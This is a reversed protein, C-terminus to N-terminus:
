NKRAIFGIYPCDEEYGDWFEAGLEKIGASSIKLNEWEIGEFGADNATKEIQAKSFNTDIISMYVEGKENYFDIGIRGDERKSFKRNNVVEGFRKFAPNLTLAVFKCGDKLLNATNSFIEEMQEQNVAPIVMIATVVDFKKGATIEAYSSIYEIDQPNSAEEDRAKKLENESPECGVVEVAGAGKIMKTFTGNACGIDLVKKDKLEGILRLAEPYQVFRKNPDTITALAYEMSIKDYQHLLAYSEAKKHEGDIIEQAKKPEGEKYAMFETREATNEFNFTKM